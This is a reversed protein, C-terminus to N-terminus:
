DTDRNNWFETDKLFRGFDSYLWSDYILAILKGGAKLHFISKLLFYVYLNSKSPIIELFASLSKLAFIKSNEGDMMLEQRVYPPNQIIFDFKESLHINFFSDIILIRNAKAYFEKIKETILSEDLEVGVIKAPTTLDDLYSFFTNPGICPDLVRHCDKLESKFLSVMFKALTPPTFVQGLLKKNIQGLILEGNSSNFFHNSFSVLEQQQDLLRINEKLITGM